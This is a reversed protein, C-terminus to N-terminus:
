KKKKKLHSSAFYELLPSIACKNHAPYGVLYPLYRASHASYTVSSSM